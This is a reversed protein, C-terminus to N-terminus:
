QDPVQLKYITPRIDKLELVLNPKASKWSRLIKGYVDLEEVRVGPQKLHMTVKKDKCKTRCQRVPNWASVLFSSDEMRFIVTEVSGQHTFQFDDEVNLYAQRFVKKVFQYAKYAPKKKGSIDMLGLHYNNEDGIVDDGVPLDRLRYWALLSAKQSELMMLHHRWLSEAQYETTHERPHYLWVDKASNNGDGRYDSYGFEAVWLEGPFNGLLSQVSHLTGPYAEAGEPSWTENYGHLNVAHFKKLFQPHKALSKLFDGDTTALGGVILKVEPYARKAGRIGAEALGMYEDATGNWYLELDPENWLEWYPLRSKYRKVLEYMFKGFTKYDKPPNKWFDYYGGISAWEATYCIYPMLQINNAEAEKVLFDLHKWDYRDEEPQLDDWGVGIRLKKVGLSKLIQFDQKARDRAEPTDPYDEALAIEVSHYKPEASHSFPTSLILAFWFVTNFLPHTRM